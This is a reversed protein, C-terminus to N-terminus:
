TRTMPPPGAPEYAAATRALSPMFTVRKSADFNGLDNKEDSRRLLICDQDDIGPIM